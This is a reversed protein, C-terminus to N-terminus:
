SKCNVTIAQHGLYLHWTGNMADFNGLSFPPSISIWKFLWIFALPFSGIRNFENTQDTENRRRWQRRVLRFHMWFNNFQWQLRHAVILRVSLSSVISNMTTNNISDSDDNSDGNCEDFHQKNMRHLKCRNARGGAINKTMKQNEDDPQNFARKKQDSGIPPQRHFTKM